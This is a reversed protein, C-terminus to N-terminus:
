QLAEVTVRCGNPMNEGWNATLSRVQNDNELIGVRQLWDLVAKQRNDLDSHKRVAHWDFHLDVKVPTALRVKPRTAMYIGDCQLKWAKYKADLYFQPKGGGQGRRARWIANVSPPMPLDLVFASM